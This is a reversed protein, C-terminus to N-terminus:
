GGVPAAHKGRLIQADTAAVAEVRTREARRLIGPQAVEAGAPLHVLAGIAGTSASRFLGAADLFVPFVAGVAHELALQRQTSLHARGFRQKCAVALHDRLDVLVTHLRSAIAGTAPTPQGGIVLPDRCSRSLSHIARLALVLLARPSRRTPAHAMRRKAKKRMMSPANAIQVATATEAGARACCCPDIMSGSALTTFSCVSSRSNGRISPSM